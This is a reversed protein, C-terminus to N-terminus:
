HPCCGTLHRSSEALLLHCLRKPRRGKRWEADVVAAAETGFLLRRENGALNVLYVLDRQRELHM